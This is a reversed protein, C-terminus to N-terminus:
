FDNYLALITLIVPKYFAIYIVQVNLIYDKAM